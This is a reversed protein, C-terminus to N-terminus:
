LVYHCYKLKYNSNDSSEYHSIFKRSKRDLKKNLVNIITKNENFDIDNNRSKYRLLRCRDSLAALQLPTIDCNTHNPLVVMILPYIINHVLFNLSLYMDYEPINM